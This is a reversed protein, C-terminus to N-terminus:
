PLRYMRIVSKTLGGLAVINEPELAPFIFNHSIIITGPAAERCLKEYLRVMGAPWLYCLIIKPQDLTLAFFDGRILRINSPGGIKLRLWSVLWPLPSMEIATVSCAPFRRAARIALAGWGSGLEYIPGTMDAPIMDLMQRRAAPLTMMPAVGSRQQYFENLLAAAIAALMILTAFWDYFTM